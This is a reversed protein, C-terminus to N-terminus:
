ASLASAGASAAYHNVVGQGSAPLPAPRGLLYGQGIDCGLASLKAMQSETEIGEATVKVGLGAGLAIIARVLKDQKESHEFTSIFSRDIKIKDFRYTSLQSLSSHGTGFDDLAISIGAGVFQELILRATQPDQVLATETVELELRTPPLGTEALMTLIRLGLLRDSLQIASINFSLVTGAPWTLANRCAQRFLSDTLEAIQGTEEALAIFENAAIFQGPTIEWRALAEFGIIAGTKLDVLPQYYPVIRHMRIAARLEGEMRARRLTVARIEAQFPTVTNRGRRKAEYMANDAGQIVTLLDTSDEPYLAYGVSAGIDASRHGIRVPEGIRQLITRGTADLDLCGARKAVILFEDGGLRLVHDDPFIDLLRQAVTKLVLDGFDHGWLDNARKFGDLDISYVVLGMGQAHALGIAGGKADLARRNPLNTLPDHCAIWEARDEATIRRDIEANLDRIRLASYILGIIGTMNLAIFLDQLYSHGGTELYDDMLRHLDFVITILSLGLVM